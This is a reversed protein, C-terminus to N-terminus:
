SAPEDLSRRTRVAGSGELSEPRVSPADRQPILRPIRSTDRQSGCLVHNCFEPPDGM